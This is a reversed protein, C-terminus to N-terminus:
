SDFFEDDTIKFDNSLRCSAKNQLLGLKRVSKRIYKSYPVLVAITEKKKGFSVAVEEGKKISEIIESFHSKFEAVPLTKM